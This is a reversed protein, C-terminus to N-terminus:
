RRSSPTLTYFLQGEGCLERIYEYKLLEPTLAELSTSIGRNRRLTNVYPPVQQGARGVPRRRRDPM